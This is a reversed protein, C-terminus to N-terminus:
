VLLDFGTFMVNENLKWNTFWLFLLTIIPLLELVHLLWRSFEQELVCHWIPDCRGCASLLSFLTLEAWTCLVTYFFPTYHDYSTLNRLPNGNKRTLVLHLHDLSHLHPPSLLTKRKRTLLQGWSHLIHISRIRRTVRGKRRQNKMMQSRIQM